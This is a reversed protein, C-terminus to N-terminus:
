KLGNLLKALYEGKLPMVLEFTTGDKRPIVKDVEIHHYWDDSTPKGIQEGHEENFLTTIRGVAQEKAQQTQEGITRTTYDLKIIAYVKQSEFRFDVSREISLRYSTAASDLLSVADTFEATKYKTEAAKQFALGQSYSKPALAAANFNDAENKLTQLGIIKNRCDNRTEM